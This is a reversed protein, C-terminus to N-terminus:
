SPHDLWQNLEEVMQELGRLNSYIRILPRSSGDQLTLIPRYTVSRDGDSDRGVHREIEAHDISSLQLSDEVYGMFDRRRFTAVGSPRDFIVQVRATFKVLFLLPIASFGIFMVGPFIDEKFLFLGIGSFMLIMFIMGAGMLWPIHDLILQDQTKTTVKM